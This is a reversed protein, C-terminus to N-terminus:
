GRLAIRADVVTLPGAASITHIGRLKPHWVPSILSVPEEAYRETDLHVIRNFVIGAGYTPTGNQGPRITAGGSDFIRGAPRARGADTVVPNAAHPTWPGLPSEGYFLSLDDFTSEETPQTGAFLWWRGELFAVTADVVPQGLDLARDLVWDNPFASARYVEQLGCGTSEVYMYWEHEHRFVFPYSLHHPADIALRAPGTVGGPVFEVVCIRGREQEFVLEEFFVFSRGQDHVVCPDAWFRDAPPVVPKFRFMAAQPAHNSAHKGHDFAYALQWQEKTTAALFRRKALRLGLAAVGVILEAPTPVTFLRNSYANLPPEGPMSEAASAGRRSLERLRQLLLPSSARYLRIRNQHVSIPDTAVATRALVVGGDLDESLRQLIAGTSPWGLIVEWFCPPSGRNLNNNGHHYSWVGHRPTNLVPGRLIRFGYRVAVDPQLARLADLAPEDLYDSFETQRPHAEICPIGDLLATLDQSQFPDPGSAPYRWADFRLYRELAVRNRRQWANRIRRLVKRQAPPAPGASEAKNLVIGVISAFESRHISEIQEAIWRPVTM